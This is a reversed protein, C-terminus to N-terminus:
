EIPEGDIAVLQKVYVEAGNALFADRYSEILKVKLLHGKIHQQLIEPSATQWQIGSIKEYGREM